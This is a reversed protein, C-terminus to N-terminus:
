PAGTGTVAATEAFSRIGREHDLLARKRDLGGAYGTLSGDAGVVRHCPVVIAVPNRGVAHGTARAAGPFGAAAAVDRYSVTRGFPIQRLANWVRLQFDTGRLDLELDFETRAGAFWEDLQRVAEGFADDGPVAGGARAIRPTGRHEEFSIGRLTEGDGVLLLDGLPSPISRAVTMTM